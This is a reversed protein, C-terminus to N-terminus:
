QSCSRRVGPLEFAKHQVPTPRTAVEFPETGPLRPAVTNRTVTALDALVTRFSQVPNGETTHKAETSVEHPNRTVPPDVRVELWTRGPGVGALAMGPLGGADFM